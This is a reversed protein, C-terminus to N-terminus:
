VKFEYHKNPDREIDPPYNKRKDAYYQALHDGESAKGYTIYLIRRSAQTTNPISKHPSFSYFFIADGPQTEAYIFTMDQMSQDNLPAWEDGILGRNHFGGAIELCGNEISAPDISILATIHLSGYTAWGAQVDQHPTFGASGPLKFNIKDKFLIAPEGFLQSVVGQMKPGQTLQKFGHHYALFNELRSLIRQGSITSQEFYMMYKGPVEPWQQVENAWNTMETMAQHDFLGKVILYGNQSFEEVQDPSLVAEKETIIMKDKRIIGLAAVM